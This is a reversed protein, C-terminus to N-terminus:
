AQKKSEIMRRSPSVSEEFDSKMKFESPQLAKKSIMNDSKINKHHKYINEKRNNDSSLRSEQENMHKEPTHRSRYEDVAGSNKDIILSEQSKNKELVVSENVQELPDLVTINQKVVTINPVEIDSV